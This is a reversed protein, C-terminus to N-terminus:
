PSVNGSTPSKNKNRNHARLVETQYLYLVSYNKKFLNTKVKLTYDIGERCLGLAKGECLCNRRGSDKSTRGYWSFFPTTKKSTSSKNFACNAQKKSKLQLLLFVFTEKIIATTFYQPSVEKKSKL